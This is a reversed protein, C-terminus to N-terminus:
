ISVIVFLRLSLSTEAADKGSSSRASMALRFETISAVYASGPAVPAGQGYESPALVTGTM